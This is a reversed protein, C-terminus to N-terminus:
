ATWDTNRSEEGSSTSNVPTTVTLPEAAARDVQQWARRVQFLLDMRQNLIEPSVKINAELLKSRIASYFRSFHEAAQGGKEKDLSGELQQLVVLAHKIERCRKEIERTEIAAIARKIDTILQDFLIIVLGVASADQVKARLYSLETQSRNM